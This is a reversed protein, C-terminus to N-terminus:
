HHALYQILIFSFNLLLNGLFVTLIFYFYIEILIHVGYIIKHYDFLKIENNVKNLIYEMTFLIMYSHNFLLYMKM